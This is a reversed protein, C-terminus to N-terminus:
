PADAHQGHVIRTKRFSRGGANKPDATAATEAPATTAAATTTVPTPAPEPRPKPTRGCAASAVFSALLLPVYVYGLNKV